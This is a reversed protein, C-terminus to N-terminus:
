NRYQFFFRMMERSADPRRPETYSGCRRQRGVMRPGRWSPGVERLVSRGDRGRARHAHLQRWWFGQRPQGDGPSARGGAIPRDGSRRQCPERDPRPRRSVRHDSRAGRVARRSARRRRARRMAAFASGHRECRRVGTRFARRVAAYLDPVDRGHDGGGRWRRLPRRRLRTASEVPFDDIIQRTIGAILSPEGPGRRQDAQQVLELMAVCQRVAGAGSLGRPVQAGGGTREHATGAAFDDPSQTCGHLMVVLPLSRGTFREARLAQINRAVRRMPTSTNKSDRATPCPPAPSTRLCTWDALGRMPMLSFKRLLGGEPALGLPSDSSLAADTEPAEPQRRRRRASADDLVPPTCRRPRVLISRRKPAAAPAPRLELVGRLVAM